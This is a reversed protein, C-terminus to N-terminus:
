PLVQEFAAAIVGYGATNAHIDGLACFWTWDCVHAACNVLNDNEFAGAVDAVPDGAAAYMDVLTANFDDVRSCVFLQSPDSVCVPAFVDYYSMAVIPVDPGAAARLDALIASLNEVMRATQTACGAPELLCNVENGQADLRFLDNAGIDITVLAVKDKHAQLFSVAEALQTGKPYLVHKYYRPTGCSLVVTPDQSGFRMSVTSEGGCGLKVLELKPDAAVLSAYLQEVYGHTDDGNPQFSAALSNGLSVYYHAANTDDATAISPGSLVAMLGMATAASLLAGGSVIRLISFFRNPSFWRPTKMHKKSTLPNRNKM